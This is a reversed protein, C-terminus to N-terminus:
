LTPTIATWTQGGDTTKLLALAGSAPESIAWGTTNSVFDLSAVGQFASSAPLQTWHQGGNTTAFLATGNTAWGHNVDSFATIRNSAQLLSTSKWTAGGDHTVYVDLDAAGATPTTVQIPLIGDHDNFFSPPEIDSQDLSAGPPPPLTQLQWAGGGDHTVYFLPRVYSFGTLWGTSANLFTLGRKTGAFPITGNNPPIGTDAVKTWTAGDDTTRFLSATENGTAGNLDALAWGDQANVFSMFFPSVSQFSGEQQWTQGGDTTKFFVATSGDGEPAAVWAVSANLFFAPLEGGVAALPAPPTVDQWHLGGDTTRLVRWGKAVPGEAWGTTADIMHISTLGFGQSSGPTPTPTPTSSVKTVTATALNKPGGATNNGGRHVLILGLTLGGVLVVLLAVAVLATVRASWRQSTRFFRHMPRLREQPFSSRNIPENGRQQHQFLPGVGRQGLRGWVRDLGSQFRQARPQYLDHLDRLLELDLAAHQDPQASADERLCQDIQEDLHQLHAVEELNLPDNNDAM